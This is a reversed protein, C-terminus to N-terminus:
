QMPPTTISTFKKGLAMGWQTLLWQPTHLLQQICKPPPQWKWQRSIPKPPDISSSNNLTNPALALGEQDFTQLLKRKREIQTALSGV